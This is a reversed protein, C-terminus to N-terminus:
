TKTAESRDEEAQQQQDPQGLSGDGGDNTGENLTAAKKKKGKPKINFHDEAKSMGDKISKAVGRLTVLDMEIIADLKHGLYEELNDQTVGMSSFAKVMKKARDILPETSGGALTKGCEAVANDIIDGPIVALICARLRRAAQNATLEYIDRDDELKTHIVKKDAGYGENKTRTHKVTFTKSIRTNTELDWAYSEVTSEGDRRDLEKVGCDLNGWCQALAEAMRISPGTVKKGGRPYAYLADEALAKRQCAQLIRNEAEIMNRPYMKAMAMAAKVQTEARSALEANEPRQAMVNTSAMHEALSTDDM